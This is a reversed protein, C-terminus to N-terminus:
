RCDVAFEEPSAFQQPLNVAAEADQLPRTGGPEDCARREAASNIPVLSGAAARRQEGIV